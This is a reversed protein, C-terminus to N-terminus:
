KNGPANGTCTGPFIEIEMSDHDPIRNPGQPFPSLGSTDERKRITTEGARAKCRLTHNKITDYIIQSYYDSQM